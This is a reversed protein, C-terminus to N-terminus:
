QGQHSGAVDVSTLNFVKQGTGRRLEWLGLNNSQRGVEGKNGGEM